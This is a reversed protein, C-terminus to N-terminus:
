KEIPQSAVVAVWVESAGADLLVTAAANLTSGTTSIDDIVLYRGACKKAMFAEKAQLIRQKRSARRQVSNTKRQLLPSYTLSRLKAVQCALLATQDYGRERIHPAITPIPVIIIDNPLAPLTTHLLEALPVYAARSREFKYRNLLEKLGESRSGVCWAKTFASNCATCINESPRALRHCLICAEFSDNIIDYKCYECLLSGVVGCSCCYHPALLSTLLKRM